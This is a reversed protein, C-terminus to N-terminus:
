NSVLKFDIKIWRFNVNYIFFYNYFNFHIAVKNQLVIDPNTIVTLFPYFSSISIIEFFSAFIMLILIFILKIRRDPKVLKWLKKFLDIFRIDINDNM